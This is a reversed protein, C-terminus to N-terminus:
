EAVFDIRNNNAWTETTGGAPAFITQLATDDFASDAITCDKPLRIKTLGTCNKFANAGISTCTHADVSTIMEDGEFASEGITRTGTPLKFSATGFTVKAKWQAYLTTHATPTFPDGVAYMTGTGDALTNWGNFVSNDCSFPCDPLTMAQEKVVNKNFTSGTGDNADFTVTWASAWIAYLKFTGTTDTNTADLKLQDGPHYATGSGGKKTNWEKMAEGSKTFGCEPLTVTREADKGGKPVLLAPMSGKGGDNSYFKLRYAPTWQAYLTIDGTIDEIVANPQYPTGPNLETPHALTNWGTFIYYGAADVSGTEKNVLQAIMLGDSGNGDYTVTYWATKDYWTLEVRINATPTFTYATVTDTIAAVLDSGWYLGGTCGYGGPNLTLTFTGPGEGVNSVVAEEYLVSNNPYSRGNSTVSWAATCDDPKFEIVQLRYAITNAYVACGGPLAGAGTTVDDWDVGAYYIKLQSSCGDFAHDGISTVSGPITVSELSSCGYFASAGIGNVGDQITVSTLGSCGKFASDGISSVSDPITVSTLGVCDMFASDGISSVGDQITVSTLSSCGQFASFGISTVGTPIVYSGSKGAPYCILRTKSKNFCVGDQSSFVPNNTAVEIGALSECGSFASNGISTVSNPITMSTLSSCYQFASDGISTVGSTIRVSGLSSCDFFAAFGISAVSHPITVSGLSSCGRFAYIGISTVSDPITVSKLSSCSYFASDGINSVGAKITVSELSSCSDFTSIGISTVGAPITVSTLGSCGQFASGGISTVSDPISVSKLGSCGCFAFSGIDTVGAPITVSELKSCGYFAFIGISTVSDPITVSTLYICNEFAYNGISTVSCGGLQAPIEVETVGDPLTIGTVKAANDTITYKWTVGTDEDTYTDAGAAGCLLCLLLVAIVAAWLGKKM